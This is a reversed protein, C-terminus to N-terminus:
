GIAHSISPRRVRSAQPSGARSRRQARRVGVARRARRQAEAYHQLSQKPALAAQQEIYTTM